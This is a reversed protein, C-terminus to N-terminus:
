VVLWGVLWGVLRTLDLGVDVLAVVRRAEGNPAQSVGPKGNARAERLCARALWCPLAHKSGQM